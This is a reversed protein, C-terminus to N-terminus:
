FSTFFHYRSIDFSICFLFYFFQYSYRKMSTGEWFKFYLTFCAQIKLKIKTQIGNLKINDTLFMHNFPKKYKIFLIQQAHHFNNTSSGKNAPKKLKFEFNIEFPENRNWFHLFKMYYWAVIKRPVRFLGTLLSTRKWTNAGLIKHKM